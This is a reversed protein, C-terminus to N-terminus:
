DCIRCYMRMWGDMWRVIKENGDNKCLDGFELFSDHIRFSSPVLGVVGLGLRRM